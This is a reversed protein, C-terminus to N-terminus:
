LCVFQNGTMLKKEYNMSDLKKHTRFYQERDKWLKAKERERERERTQGGGV